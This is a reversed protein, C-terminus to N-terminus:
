AEVGRKRGKEDVGTMGDRKVYLPVEGDIQQGSATKREDRSREEKGKEDM